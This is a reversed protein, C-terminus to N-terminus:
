LQDKRFDPAGECGYTTCGHNEDWSGALLVQHCNPCEVIPDNHRITDLSFPCRQGSENALAARRIGHVRPTQTPKPPTWGGGQLLPPPPPPPPLPPPLPPPARHQNPSPAPPTPNRAPIATSAIPPTTTPAQASNSPTSFRIVIRGDPSSSVLSNAPRVESASAQAIENGSVRLVSQPDTQRRDPKCACSFIGCGGHEQWAGERHFAGCCDCVAVMEGERLADLSIPCIAPLDEARLRRIACGAESRTSTALPRKQM